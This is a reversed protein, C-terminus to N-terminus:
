GKDGGATLGFVIYKQMYIQVIMIPVALLLAGAMFVVPNNVLSSISGGIYAYLIVGVTPKSNMVISPLIYDLWPSMFANVAIFGMIPVALPVIIKFLIQANSAGDIAAAEDLSRSVNRMYGRVIFTNYPIAGAVYIMTLAVWNDRWQFTDFIGLIAIMGMFAPFMQLTLLTLLAAKKGKFRYRSFAFGTLSSLAVVLITNLVAVGLTRMFASVFNFRPEADYSLLFQYNNMSYKAFNPVIPFLGYEGIGPQAGVYTNVVEQLANQNTLNYLEKGVQFRLDGAQLFDTQDQVVMIGGLVDGNGYASGYHDINAATLTVFVIKGTKLGTRYYDGGSKVDEAKLTYRVIDGVNQMQQYYPGPGNLSALDAAFYRGTSEKVLDGQSVYVASTETLMHGNLVDGFQRNGSFYDLNEATLVVYVVEGESKGSGVFYGEGSLDEEHIVHRAIDTIQRPSDYYTGGPQIDSWTMVRPASIGDLSDIDGAVLFRQYNKGPAAVDAATLIVPATIGDASLIDGKLRPKQYYVGGSAVAQATVASYHDDEIRYVKVNTFAATVLWMIPIMVVLFWFVLYAYTIFVKVINKFNFGKKMRRWLARRELRREQRAEAQKQLQKAWWSKMGDLIAM